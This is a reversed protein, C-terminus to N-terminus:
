SPYYKKINTLHEEYTEACHIKRNKDHLYFMCNTKQPNFAAYIADVGPNAIPSPPLGKHLYTNYSSNINKDEPSVKGGAGNWKGAAFGRRKMALLVKGDKVPFCLTAQRLPGDSYKEKTETLNPYKKM